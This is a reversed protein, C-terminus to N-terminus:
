GGCGIRAMAGRAARRMDEWQAWLEMQKKDQVTAEHPNGRAV